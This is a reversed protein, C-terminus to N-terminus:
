DRYTIGSLSALSEGVFSVPRTKPQSTWSPVFTREPWATTSISIPRTVISTSAGASPVIRITAWRPAVTGTPPVSASIRV